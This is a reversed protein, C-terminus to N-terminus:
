MIKCTCQISNYRKSPFYHPIPLLWSMDWCIIVVYDVCLHLVALCSYSLHTRESSCVWMLVLVFVIFRHKGKAQSSSDTQKGMFFLFTWRGASGACNVTSVVDLLLLLPTIYLYPRMFIYPGLPQYLSVSSSFSSPPLDQSTHLSNSLHVPRREM